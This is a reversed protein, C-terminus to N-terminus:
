AYGEAKLADRLRAFEAMTRELAKKLEGESLTAAGKEIALAATALRKATVNLSSGKILHATRSAAELSGSHIDEALIGLHEETQALYEGILDKAGAVDGMMIECLEASSFTDPDGAGNGTTAASDTGDAESMQREKLFRTIVDFVDQRKYPKPLVDDMGAALCQEREDSQASATCAVIPCQYGNERIWVAAEYGNMNPMQIDMFVLNITESEFSKTAELGDAAQIVRAGAKELFITLLKRNVPHDEAVLITLGEALNVTAPVPDIAPKADEDTSELEELEVPGEGNRPPQGEEDVVELDISSEFHEKLLDALMRRKVPKYLYGNFWELLKMKAEAGFSGEPVMLYLQAQNIERNKNIEAALRWGDMEPMVMDILVIDFPRRSQRAAHLMGLAFMGSTARTVQSYGLSGLTRELIDLTRESDDVLLFRTTPSLKLTEEAPQTEAKVLPIDFWFVSGGSDASRVGIEGDMLRVINRSIALGLGTGGYKRTTSSDAQVFQAFLRSQVEEPIGIGTDIVEFHVYEGAPNKLSVAGERVVPFAKVHIFGTETFKVANKVLNLIVQRLRIPDGVFATPLETDIDICIELGKKHAEMSVLDVTQEVVDDLRYDINEIKLQGAEVKSIDLIDNILTLMVDASFRVQRAYETQEEDLKTESLLEMMGIITQIPTRIEHSINALFQSRSVSAKEASEKAQVLHSEKLKQGTIDEILALYRGDEERNMTLKYWAEEQGEKALAFDFVFFPIANTVLYDFRIADEGNAGALIVDRINPKGKGAKRELSALAGIAETAAENRAEITGDASLILVPVRSKLLYDVPVNQAIGM